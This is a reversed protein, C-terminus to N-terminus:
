TVDPDFRLPGVLWFNHPPPLPLGGSGGLHRVPVHWETQQGGVKVINHKANTMNELSVGAVVFEYSVGAM